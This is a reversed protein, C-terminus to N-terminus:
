AGCTTSGITVTPSCQDPTNRSVSGTWDATASVTAGGRIWIGGGLNVTPDSIAHNNTIASTGSLTLVAAPGGTPTQNVIGGGRRTATNGSVTSDILTLTGGFNWIGGACSGVGQCATGGAVTNNSVTSGILTVTGFDSDIGGSSDSTNATVTSNVLTLTGDDVDIGGGFVGAANGTVLSNVLRAGATAGTVAIGGGVCCGNGEVSEVSAVGNTIKLGDVTTTGNTVHLVTGAGGGDLTPTGPFAKNTVGKLTVKKDVSTNGVCTGKVELTDGAKAADVAAQLSKYDKHNRANSVACSPPGGVATPVLIALIGAALALAAVITLARARPHVHAFAM